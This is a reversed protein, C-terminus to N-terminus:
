KLDMYKHIQMGARYGFRICSEAVAMRNLQADDDDGTDYPTLYVPVGPRPRAVGKGREHDLAITPLGDDLSVQSHHVVYKFAQAYKHCTDNIYKTKPSVVLVVTARVLLQELIEDPKVTGNSEIQVTFGFAENLISVLGGIPQRLPEGGTIVVIAPVDGALM